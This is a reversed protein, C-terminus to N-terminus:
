ILQHSVIHIIIMWIFWLWGLLFHIICWIISHYLNWSCIGALINGISLYKLYNTQPIEQSPKDPNNELPPTNPSNNM